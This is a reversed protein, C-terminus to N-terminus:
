YRLRDTIVNLVSIIFATIFALGFSPIYLSSVLWTTLMVLLGNIVLTFLGLTVLNIPLAILLLFPRVLLNILGLAFGAGFITEPSAFSIAPFLRSAIYIGAMNVLCRIVFKKM